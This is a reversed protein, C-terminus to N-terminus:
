HERAFAVIKKFFVLDAVATTPNHPFNIVLIKPRPFTQRYVRQLDDFFDSDPRLEIGRVEGGAIIFSYMHIPYTPTPTLVVDGPGIWTSMTIGSTGDQSPM